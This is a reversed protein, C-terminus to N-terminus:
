PRGARKKAELEKYSDAFAAECAELLSVGRAPTVSDRDLGLLIAVVRLEKTHPPRAALVELARAAAEGPTALSHLRLTTFASYTLGEFDLDPDRPLVRKLTDTRFSPDTPGSYRRCLRADAFSTRRM